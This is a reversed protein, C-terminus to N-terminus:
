VRTPVLERIAQEFDVEAHWGLETNLRRPTAVLHRVDDPRADGTYTIPVGGGAAAVMTKALDAITRPQGSATNYARFGPAVPATLASVNARAIDRAHIFDRRMGGDEFVRLGAPDTLAQQFAAAVGSYASDSPMGPGYVQHYRLAIATGGTEVAWARCLLEQALKTAGYVNRPECPSDEVTETAILRAGCLPCSPDYEGAALAAPPRPGPVVPGHEQCHYIGDGYVMVSSALVIRQIGAAAMESLVVATGVDNCSAYAAAAAIQGGRGVMAAQHCVAGVGRLGARVADPDRVDAVLLEVQDGPRVRGEAEDGGHAHPLFADLVRVEHGDDLLQKVIHQGIFGAGGTVLILM